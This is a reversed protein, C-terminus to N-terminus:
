VSAVSLCILIIIIIGVIVNCAYSPMMKIMETYQPLWRDCAAQFQVLEAEFAADQTAGGDTIVM